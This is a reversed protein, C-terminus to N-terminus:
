SEVESAAFIRFTTRSEPEAVASTRFFIDDKTYLVCAITIHRLEKLKKDSGLGKM